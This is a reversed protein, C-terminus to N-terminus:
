PPNRILTRLIESKTRGERIALRQLRELDDESVRININRWRQHRRRRHQLQAICDAARRLDGLPLERWKEEPPALPLRQLLTQLESSERKARQGRFILSPRHLLIGPLLELVRPEVTGAELLDSLTVRWRRGTYRNHILLGEFVLRELVRQTRQDIM